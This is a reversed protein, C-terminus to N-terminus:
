LLYWKVHYIYHYKKATMADQIQYLPGNAFYGFSGFVNIKKNSKVKATTYRKNYRQGKPRRVRTKQTYRLMFKKEDGFVVRKWDRWTWNQYQLAFQCRKRM